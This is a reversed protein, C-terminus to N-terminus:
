ITEQYENRESIISCDVELIAQNRSVISEYKGDLLSFITSFSIKALVADCELTVEQKSTESENAM